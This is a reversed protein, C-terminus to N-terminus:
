GIRKVGKVNWKTITLGKASRSSVPVSALAFDLERVRAGGRGDLSIHLKQPMAKETPSVDLYLVKSGESPVLPYLKDRSLGGIQFRKAFAKGSAGDQYVMTYFNKDGDAPFVACHIINRGMFVKDAVKTVKLSGDGMLCLASDLVSCEQVFEHQRWNLGIFGEERNVYLRQNVSVVQAANIQEIEDYTTRRKHGKGYKEQLTEFWKVAHDTLHKLHHKVEKMEAETKKM